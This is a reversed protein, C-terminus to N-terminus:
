EYPLLLVTMSRDYMTWVELMVGNAIPYSSFLKNNGNLGLANHHRDAEDIEGWDGRRHRELLSGVDLCGRRVLAKVGPTMVILGTPFLVPSSHPTSM